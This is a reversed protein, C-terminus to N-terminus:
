SGAVGNAPGRREGRAGGDSELGGPRAAHGYGRQGPGAARLGADAAGAGCRSAGAGGVCRPWAVM